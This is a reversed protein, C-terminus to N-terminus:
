SPYYSNQGIGPEDETTDFTTWPNSSEIPAAFSGTIQDSDYVALAQPVGQETQIEILWRQSAPHSGQNTELKRLLVEAGPLMSGGKIDLVRNIDDVSSILNHTRYLWKQNHAEKGVKRHWQCIHIDGLRKYNGHEYDLCLGTAKNIIYGNEYKWLQAVAEDGYKQDVVVLRTPEFSGSLPQLVKNSLLSKIYFWGTPFESM